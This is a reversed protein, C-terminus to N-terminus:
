GELVTFIGGAAAAWFYLSNVPGYVDDGFMAAYWEGSGGALIRVGIGLGADMGFNLWLDAASNNQVLLYRRTANANLFQKSGAVTQFNWPVFAMRVPEGRVGPARQAPRMQRAGQRSVAPVPFTARTGTELDLPLDGLGGQRQFEHGGKM